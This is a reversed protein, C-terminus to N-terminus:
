LQLRWLTSRCSTARPTVSCWPVWRQPGSHMHQALTGPLPTEAFRCANNVPATSSLCAGRLEAAFWLPSAPAGAPSARQSAEKHSLAVRSGQTSPHPQRIHPRQHPRAAM